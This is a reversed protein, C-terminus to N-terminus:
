RNQVEQLLTKLEAIHWFYKIDNDMIELDMWCEEDVLQAKMEQFCDNCLIVWKESLRNEVLSLGGVNENIVVIEHGEVFEKKCNDCKYKM